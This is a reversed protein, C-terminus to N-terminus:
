NWLLLRKDKMLYSLEAMPVDLKIVQLSKYIKHMNHVKEGKNNMANM